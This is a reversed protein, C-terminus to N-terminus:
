WWRREFLIVMIMMMMMETTATTMPNFDQADDISSRERESAGISRNRTPPIPRGLRIEREGEKNKEGSYNGHFIFVHNRAPIEVENDNARERPNTESKAAM